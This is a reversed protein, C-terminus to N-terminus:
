LLNKAYIPMAAMKTMHCLGNISAKMRGDWSPEVQFIAEILRINESSFVNSLTSDSHGQVFTLSHGQDKINM